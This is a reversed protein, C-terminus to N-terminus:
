AIQYYDFVFKWIFVEVKTTFNKMIINYKNTSKDKFSKREIETPPPMCLGCCM